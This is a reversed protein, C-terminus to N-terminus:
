KKPVEGCNRNLTQLRIDESQRGADELRANAADPAKLAAEAWVGSFRKKIELVAALQKQDIQRFADNERSQEATTTSLADLGDRAELRNILDDETSIAVAYCKLRTDLDPMQSSSCGGLLFVLGLAPLAIALGM